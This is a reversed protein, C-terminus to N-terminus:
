PPLLGSLDIWGDKRPERGLSILWQEVSRYNGRTSNLPPLDKFKYLYRELLSLEVAEALSASPVHAVEIRLCSLPFVSQFNNWYYKLGAAHSGKGTRAAQRLTRLRRYGGGTTGIDLVGEEDRAGAREVVRPLGTNLDFARLRYAAPGAGIQTKWVEGDFDWPGEFRIM